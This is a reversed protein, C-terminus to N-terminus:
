LKKMERWTNTRNIPKGNRTVFVAGPSIKQKSIYRLLKKQLVHTILVSRIKGKLSVIAEGKKVAEVTIYQLESVRIGTGCITQILLSLRNKGKLNATRVM